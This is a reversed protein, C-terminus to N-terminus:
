ARLARVQILPSGPAASCGASDVTGADSPPPGGVDPSMQLKCCMNIM